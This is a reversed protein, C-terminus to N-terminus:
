FTRLKRRGPDNFNEKKKISLSIKLMEQVPKSNISLTAKDNNIKRNNSRENITQLFQDKQQCHDNPSCFSKAVDFALFQENNTPQSM